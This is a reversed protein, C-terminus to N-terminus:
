GKIYHESEVKTRCKATNVLIYLNALSNSIGHSRVNGKYEIRTEVKRGSQSYCHAHCPGCPILYNIGEESVFRVERKVESIRNTRTSVVCLGTKRLCM